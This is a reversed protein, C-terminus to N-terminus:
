FTEEVRTTRKWSNLGNHRSSIFQKFPIEDIQCANRKKKKKKLRSPGRMQADM